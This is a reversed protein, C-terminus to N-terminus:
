RKRKVQFASPSNGDSWKECVPLYADEQTEKHRTDNGAIFNFKARADRERERECARARARKECSLSLRSSATDGPAATVDAPQGPKAKNRWGQAAAGGGGVHLAM